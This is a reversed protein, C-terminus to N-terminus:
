FRGFILYSVVVVFSLYLAIMMFLKIRKKVARKKVFSYTSEEDRKYDGKGISWKYYNHENGPKSMIESTKRMFPIQCGTREVM